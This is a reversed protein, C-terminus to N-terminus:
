NVDFLNNPAFVTFHECGTCFVTFLPPDLTLVHHVRDRSAYAGPAMHPRTTTIEKGCNLCATKALMRPERMSDEQLIRGCSGIIPFLKKTGVGKGEYLRYASAGARL